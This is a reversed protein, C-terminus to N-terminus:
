RAALSEVYATVAAADSPNLHTEEVMEPMIQQWEARTYNHVPEPAHCKACKTVYIIRGRALQSSGDAVPPAIANIDTTACSSLLSVVSVVFLWGVRQLNKRRTAAMAWGKPMLPTLTTNM